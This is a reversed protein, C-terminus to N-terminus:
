KSHQRGVLQVAAFEDTEMMGPIENSYAAIDTQRCNDYIVERHDYIVEGYDYIAGRDL